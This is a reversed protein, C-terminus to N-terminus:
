SNALKRVISMWARTAFCTAWMRPHVFITFISCASGSNSGTRVFSTLVSQYEQESTYIFCANDGLRLDDVTRLRRANGSELGAAASHYGTDAM